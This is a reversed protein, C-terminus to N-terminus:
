HILSPGPLTSFIISCQQGLDEPTKTLLIVQPQQQPPAYNGYRPYSAYYLNSDQAPPAYGYTEYGYYGGGGNWQNQDAHPQRNSSTRGWSLRISQGGLQTGNLM